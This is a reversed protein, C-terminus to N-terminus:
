VPRSQFGFIPRHSEQMLDVKVVMLYVRSSTDDGKFAPPADFRVQLAELEEARTYTHLPRTM